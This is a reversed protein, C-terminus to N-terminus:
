LCLTNGFLVVKRLIAFFLAGSRDRHQAKEVLTLVAVNYLVKVKRRVVASARCLQMQPNRPM